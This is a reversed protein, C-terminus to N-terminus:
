LDPTMGFKASFDVRTCVVCVGYFCLVVGVVFVCLLWLCICVFAVCVSAVYSWLRKCVWVFVGVCVYVVGVIM